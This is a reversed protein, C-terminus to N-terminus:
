NFIREILRECPRKAFIRKIAPLTKIIEDLIKELSQFDFNERIAFLNVKRISYEDLQSYSINNHESVFKVIQIYDDDNRNFNYNM